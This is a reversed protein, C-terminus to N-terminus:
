VTTFTDIFAFGTCIGGEDTGMKKSRVLYDGYGKELITHDDSLTWSYYGIESLIKSVTTCKFNSYV